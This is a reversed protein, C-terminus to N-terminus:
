KSIMIKIMFEINRNLTALENRIDKLYSANIEDTNRKTDTENKKDDSKRVSEVIEDESLKTIRKIEDMDKKCKYMKVAIHEIKCTIGKVTRGHLLSIEDFPINKDLEDLLQKEEDVSWPQGIRTLTQMKQNNNTM